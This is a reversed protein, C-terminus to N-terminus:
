RLGCFGDVIDWWHLAISSGLATGAILWLFPQLRRRLLLMGIMCPVLIFLYQGGYRLLAPWFGMLPARPGLLLFTANMVLWFLFAVALHAYWTSLWATWDASRQDADRRRTVLLALGSLLMSGALELLMLVAFRGLLTEGFM